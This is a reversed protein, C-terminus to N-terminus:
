VDRPCRGTKFLKGHRSVHITVVPRPAPQHLRVLDSNVGAHRTQRPMSGSMSTLICSPPAGDCFTSLVSSAVSLILNALPFVDAELILDPLNM